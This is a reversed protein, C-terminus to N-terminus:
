EAAGAGRPRVLVTDLWRRALTMLQEVESVSGVLYRPGALDDYAELIAFWRDASDEDLHVGIVLAASLPSPPGM